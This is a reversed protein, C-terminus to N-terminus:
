SNLKPKKALPEKEAGDDTETTTPSRESNTSPTPASSTQGKKAKAQILELRAMKERDRKAIQTRHEERGKETDQSLEALLVRRDSRKSAEEAEEIRQQEEVTGPLENSEWIKSREYEEWSKREVDVM